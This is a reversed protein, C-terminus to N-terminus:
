CLLSQCVTMEMDYIGLGTVSMSIQQFIEAHLCASNLTEIRASKSQPNGCKSVLNLKVADIAFGMYSHLTLVGALAVFDQATDLHNWLNGVMLEWTLRGFEFIRDSILHLIQAQTVEDPVSMGNQVFIENSSDLTLFTVVLAVM